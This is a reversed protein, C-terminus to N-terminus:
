RSPSPQDSAPVPSAGLKKGLRYWRSGYLLRLDALRENLEQDLRLAWATREDFEQQLKQLAARAQELEGDLNKAWQVKQEYDSQLQLIYADKGAIERNMAQAWATREELQRELRRIQELATDRDRRAEELQAELQRIHTERERLVNGTSPLYLLPRAAPLPEGSCLAVLFHAEQQRRDLGASNESGNQQRFAPPHEALNGAQAADAVLLGAVHNQLLVACHPFVVRLLERFEAYSYEREHFPNVEGRDETYYLRNPTSLLLLGSPPLIRRMEQLFAVGDGIHEIIEFAVVVDFEAPRFPLSLCDAQVFATNPAAYHNRAYDVAERAIDAGVVRLATQGLIAAGYGSGCAVDLVRKGAVYAAAFVYRALHENLLDANVAGPIVREGTFNM